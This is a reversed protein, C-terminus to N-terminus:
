PVFLITADVGEGRGVGLFFWEDLSHTTKQM